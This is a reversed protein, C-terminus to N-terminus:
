YLLGMISLKNVTWLLFLLQSSLLSSTCLEWSISQEFYFLLQSSGRRNAPADRLPGDNIIALEYAEVEQDTSVKWATKLLIANGYQRIITNKTKAEKRILSSKDRLKWCLNTKEPAAEPSLTSYTDRGRRKRVLAPSPCVNQHSIRWSQMRAASTASKSISQAFYDKKPPSFCTNEPLFQVVVHYIAYQVSNFKCIQLWACFCRMQQSFLLYAGWSFKSGVEVVRSQM